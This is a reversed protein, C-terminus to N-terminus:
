RSNVVKEWCWAVRRVGYLHLAARYARNAGRSGPSQSKRTGSGSSEVSMQYKVGVIRIMRAELRRLIWSIKILATM